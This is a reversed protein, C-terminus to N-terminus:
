TREPASRQNASRQNASRQNTFMSAALGFGVLAIAVGGLFPGLPAWGDAGHTREAIQWFIATGIFCGAALIGVAVRALTAGQTLWLVVFGICFGAINLGIAIGILIGM